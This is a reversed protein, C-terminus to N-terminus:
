STMSLIRMPDISQFHWLETWSHTNKGILLAKAGKTDVKLLVPMTVNLKMSELANEGHLMEKVCLKAAVVKTTTVSSIICLM